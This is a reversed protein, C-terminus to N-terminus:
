NYKAAYYGAFGCMANARRTVHCAMATSIIEFQNLHKISDRIFNNRDNYEYETVYYNSPRTQFTQAM